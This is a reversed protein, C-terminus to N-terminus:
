SRHVTPNGFASFPVVFSNFEGGWDFLRDGGTNAILVDLCVVGYACDRDAYETADPQNNLGGNTDHNDDANLVDDGKGGFLRDNTTGGVLWDNGDDGFLRDKGDEIKQGTAGAADFNLFFGQIKRM